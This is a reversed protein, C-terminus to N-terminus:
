NGIPTPKGFGVLRPFVAMGSISEVPGARGPCTRCLLRESGPVM